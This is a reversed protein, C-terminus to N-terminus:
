RLSARATFAITALLFGGNVFTMAVLVVITWQPVFILMLGAFTIVAGYDRVLKILRVPFAGSTIMSGSNPGSQMVGAVLNVMWTGAFASVLWAPTAPRYAVSTAGLATVLGIQAAVDCFIDVRAGATSTRGSVRALQGDSCDLVYALQWGVLAILGVAWGPATGAAASPALAVVCVSASLGLVLNALTLVTPALGLRQAGLAVLAGLRQSVAESYLGGGRNVAYFDAARYRGGSAPTPRGPREVGSREVGAREAKSREVGAREAKSREVGAREAKSRMSM